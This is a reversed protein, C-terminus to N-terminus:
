PIIKRILSFPQINIEPLYVIGNPQAVQVRNGKEDLMSDTRLQFDGGNPQVCELIDDKQIRGRVEIRAKNSEVETAIGVFSYAGKRHAGGAPTLGAQMEGLYFGTTFERNSTKRLEELWAPDAKYDSPSSYYADLAWKYARTAVGVYYASKMRGEIKLASM